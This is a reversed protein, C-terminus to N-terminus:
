NVMVKKTVSQNDSILKILYFGEPLNEMTFRNDEFAPKKIRQIIQGNITILDIEDLSIPSQINIRHDNSPNPYISITALQDFSNTALTIAPGWIAWVYEPHDIFPNRNHQAAYVANNRATEKASVPDALHWAYLMKLSWGEFVRTNTGDLFEAGNSNNNEWGAVLDEYCTAMYFYNRAIDGKYEDAPEFVTTSPAGVAVNNGRKTGNSSTYNATGVIGYALNGRLGNDYKDTPMVHFADSYMPTGAVGGFWSKPFTHEKNFFQCEATGGLGQDQNGGTGTGFTFVCSSYIDWVKGTPLADTSQYLNWLGSGYSIVTHPSIKTYLQTKLTYGTGTASNYYGAPIQAFGLTVVLIAILNYIKNM